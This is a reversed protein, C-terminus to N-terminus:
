PKVSHQDVDLRIHQLWKCHIIHGLPKTLLDAPNQVGPIHHVDIIRRNVCDRVFHARIDIHKMRSHSHPDHTCAVTGQNDCFLISSQIQPFGLEKFLSRLWIIQRTSHTCSIYEAECSSLAVVVQQKSSWSIPGGGCEILYGSISKRGDSMAWDSDTFSRFTIATNTTDGYIIGRSRTGQLYRLLHKAARFHEKGYNSMFRALERVAFAIDPRTCTSLYMCKGVIACYNSFPEQAVEEREADTKPCMDSTLRTKPCPTAVKNCDQMNFDRLISSAFQSQDVMLLRKSRDRTIRCGLIWEANGSDTTTFKDNIQSAALDSETKSDSALLIDDVSTASMTFASPTRRTYVSWDTECRKFGLDSYADHLTLYWQRGAQRLGYLGKRLRWYPSTLGFGTPARMYIEEDLPGNLYATKVDLQRLELDQLASICLLTRISDWRAVPAFTFTFDQGPIQTFGKAVLRAKFRAISGLKDRKVHLVWKCQVAKRGPPLSDVNDYVGKAKLAELEEHIASLWEAWHLSKRAELLSKPDTTDDDSQISSILAETSSIANIIPLFPSGDDIPLALEADDLDLLQQVLTDSRIFDNFKSPLRTARKPRSIRYFFKQQLRPLPWLILYTIAYGLLSGDNPLDV